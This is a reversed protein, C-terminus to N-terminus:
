AIPGAGTEKGPRISITRVSKGSMLKASGVAVFGM